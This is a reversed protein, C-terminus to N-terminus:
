ANEKDLDEIVKNVVDSIRMGPKYYSPGKSETGGAGSAIRKAKEKANPSAPTKGGAANIKEWIGYAIDFRPIGTDVILQFVQKQIDDTVTKGQSRVTSIQKDYEQNIRDAESKRQSQTKEQDQALEQKVQAKVDAILEEVSNYQKAEEKPEEKKNLAEVHEKLPGVTETIAERVIRQIEEPSVITTIKEEVKETVPEESVEEQPTEPTEPTVVEEIEDSM